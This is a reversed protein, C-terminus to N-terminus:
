EVGQSELDVSLNPSLTINFQFDLSKPRAHYETYCQKLDSFHWGHFSISADILGLPELEDISIIFEYYGGGTVPSILSVNGDVVSSYNLILELDDVLSPDFGPSSAWSLQGTISSNVGIGLMPQNIPPPDSISISVNDTVNLDWDM